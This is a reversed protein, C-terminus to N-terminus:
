EGQTEIPQEEQAPEVVPMPENIKTILDEKNGGLSEFSNAMNKIEQPISALKSRRDQEAYLASCHAQFLQDSMPQYNITDM